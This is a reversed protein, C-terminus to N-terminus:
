FTTSIVENFFLRQEKSYNGNAMLQGTEKSFQLVENQLNKRFIYDMIIKKYQFEVIHLKFLLVMVVSEKFSNRNKFKEFDVWTLFEFSYKIYYCLKWNLTTNEYKIISDIDVNGNGVVNFYFMYDNYNDYFRKYTTFEKLFSEVILEYSGNENYLKMFWNQSHKTDIYYCIDYFYQFYEDKENKWNEFEM